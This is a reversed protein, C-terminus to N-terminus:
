SEKGMKREMETSVRMDQEMQGLSWESVMNNTMWGTEKTTHVMQMLIHEKDMLKTM